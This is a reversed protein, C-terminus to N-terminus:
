GYFHHNEMTQCDLRNVWHINIYPRFLGLSGPSEKVPVAARRDSNGERLVPNVASGLVKAYRAKSWFPPGSPPTIKGRFITFPVLGQHSM